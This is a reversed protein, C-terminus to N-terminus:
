EDVVLSPPGSRPLRHATALLLANTRRMNRSERRDGLINIVLAM